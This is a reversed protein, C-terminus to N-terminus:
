GHTLGFQGQKNKVLVYPKANPTSLRDVSLYVQGVFHAPTRVTTVGRLPVSVPTSVVEGSTRNTWRVVTEYNSRSHNVVLATASEGRGLSVTRSSEWAGGSTAGIALRDVIPPLGRMRTRDAEISHVFAQSGEDDFFRVWFPSAILAVGPTSDRLYQKYRRPPVIDVSLTGTGGTLEDIGLERVDLALTGFSPIPVSISKLRRGREDFLRIVARALHPHWPDFFSFPNQVHIMSHRRGDELFVHQYVLRPVFLRLASARLKQTRTSM